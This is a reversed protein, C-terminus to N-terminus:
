KGRISEGASHSDLTTASTRASRGHTVTDDAQDGTRRPAGRALWQTSIWSQGAMTFSYIDSEPVMRHTLIWQGITIQWQTDPDGLLRNGVFLLLLYVGAGIALPLVGRASDPAEATRLTGSVPSKLNIRGSRKRAFHNGPERSSFADFFFRFPYL